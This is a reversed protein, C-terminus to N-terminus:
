ATEGEKKEEGEAEEVVGPEEKSRQFVVLAADRGAVAGVLLGVTLLSWRM